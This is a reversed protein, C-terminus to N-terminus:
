ANNSIQKESKLKHLDSEAMMKVLEEFHVKPKWGLQNRAKSSDGV